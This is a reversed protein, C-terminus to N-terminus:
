KSTVKPLKVPSPLNMDQSLELAKITSKTLAANMVNAMIDKDIPKKDKWQNLIETINAAEGLFLVEGEFIMEAADPEYKSTYEFIFRAGKQKVNGLNLNMEEITKIGLNNKIQLKGKPNKREVNLKIFNTGIIPM